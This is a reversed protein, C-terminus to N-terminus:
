EPSEGNESITLCTLAGECDISGRRRIKLEILEEIKDVFKKM